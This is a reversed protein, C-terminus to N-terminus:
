RTPLDASGRPKRAPRGGPPAPLASFGEGMVQRVDGIIVFAQPDIERVLDVVFNIEQQRVVAMIVRYPTGTYGGEGNLYTVGRNLTDMIPRALAEPQASVIYIMRTNRLGEQLIEVMRSEAFSGILAYLAKDPGFVVAVLAYVGVDFGILSQSVPIGRYRQLLLAVIDSGGTTAYTRFILGTGVGALLGGYLTYLIPEHTIPRVVTQLLDIMTSLVVVAYLTRLLFRWGGLWRAGALLLPVNLVFFTTGVPWGTYSNIILALGTVGGSFVKNPILFLDNALAILTAGLTILLYAQLSQRNFLARAAVAASRGRPGPNVLM